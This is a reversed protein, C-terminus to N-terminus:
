LLAALRPELVPVLAVAFTATLHNSDRYVLYKGRTAPCATPDCIVDSLDIASAGAIGATTGVDYAPDDLASRAVDCASPDDRHQGVCVAMDRGPWPDDRIVVVSVDAASLRTLTRRWGAKWEAGAKATGELHAGTRRDVLSETRTSAAVVLAPHLAVIRKLAATRWTDCEDFTRGGGRLLVTVDPAPCGSHTLTVLKWHRRDSIKELAPFWQAAHSDGFLVVVTSSTPDGFVCDKIATASKAVHCGDSYLVPLDGRADRPDPTLAGTPWTIAQATPTPSTSTGGPAASSTPAPSETVIPAPGRGGDGEGSATVAAASTLTGGGPLLALLLGAVAAGLSLAAGMRLSRATDGALTPSLRVPQEVYRYALVAPVLAVAALLVAYGLRLPGFALGALVLVPWHWLYWSYSLRGFWRMPRTALLGPVGRLPRGDEVGARIGAAIAAVTGLVPWLALTGPFDSDSSILVCSGVVLLLGVWGVAQRIAVPVRRVLPVSIALLGGLAFEWARTPMGFFAWPQARDTLRLSLLFSAVGLLALAGALVAPLHHRVDERAGWRRHVLWLVLLILLPWVVYFQEEVGLSWFHLAPSPAADQTLYDTAQFAFRINAVYLAASVLDMGTTQHDVEPVVFWGVLATVAIVLTAAPLLRRARRAWFRSLSVRGSRGVEAVLLGTILFGSIVFFVDVGVFGGRLFPLGAHYGVVALIAV